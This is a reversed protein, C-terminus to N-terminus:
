MPAKSTPLATISSSLSVAGAPSRHWILVPSAGTPGAGALQPPIRAPSPPADSGEREREAMGSLSVEGPSSTLRGGGPSGCRRRLM